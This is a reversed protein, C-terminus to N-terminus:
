RAFSMVNEIEYCFVSSFYRVAEDWDNKEIEPDSISFEDDVQELIDHFNM